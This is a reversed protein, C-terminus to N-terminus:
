DEDAVSGGSASAVAAAVDGGTTTGRSYGRTTHSLSAYTSKAALGGQDLTVTSASAFGMGGAQAWSGAGVGLYVFSWKGTAERDAILKAVAERKYERSANEHGDTQVVVLVKDDAGLSVSGDFSVVTRGVADLLATMGRPRYNSGTMEPVDGLKAASCLTEVVDDFVVATLRYRRDGDTRLDAVYANFGGCVDDAISSMSGSMDTIFLVHTTPKGVATEKPNNPDTTLDM